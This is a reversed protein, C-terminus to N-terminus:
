RADAALKKFRQEPGPPAYMQLAILPKKGGAVWAHQTAKPMVVIGGDKVPITALDTKGQEARKASGEARMAAILEWSADHQHQAVGADKSAILIGLSARQKDGEFGIRAHMSGGAWGLAKAAALDVTELGAPREKWAAKAADKSRADQLPEGGTVVALVVRTKREKATLVAGAGPARFAWWRGLKKGEKAEGGRLEVSGQVVVGYLDVGSHRPVTVANGTETLDHSWAGLPARADIEPVQPFVSTLACEKKACTAHALLPETLDNPLDGSVASAAMAKIAGPATLTGAAPTATPAASPAAPAATQVGPPLPAIPITAVPPPTWEKSGGCSSVLM